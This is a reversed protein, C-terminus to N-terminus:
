GRLYARGALLTEQVAVVSLDFSCSSRTSSEMRASLASLSAAKDM